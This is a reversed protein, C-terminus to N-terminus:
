FAGAAVGATIFLEVTCALTGRIAAPAIECTYVIVVSLFLGEGIGALCRGVFIQPLKSASAAIVSGGAFVAGGITLTYKRSIRDSLPGALLSFTAATILISSVILGQVTPTIPSFKDNFQAMTTVPGISGLGFSSNLQGVIEVQIASVNGTDFGFLFGGISAFITCATYAHMYTERLGRFVSRNRSPVPLARESTESVNAM